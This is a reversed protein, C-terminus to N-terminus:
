LLIKVLIHFMCSRSIMYRLFLNPCVCVCVFVRDGWFEFGLREFIYIECVIHKDRVKPISTTPRAFSIEFSFGEAAAQRATSVGLRQTAVEHECNEVQLVSRSWVFSTLKEGQIALFQVHRRSTRRTIRVLKWGGLFALLFPSSFQTM